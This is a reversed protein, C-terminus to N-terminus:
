VASQNRDDIEFIKKDELQEKLLETRVEMLVRGLWNLGAGRCVGLFRDNWRNENILEADGTAILKTALFPSEFKKKIFQRMLDLKVSDWDDRVQISHGLRKADNPTGANRILERTSEDLTKHAQYAHEVTKYQKGDVWISAPYWNSLFGYGAADTFSNIIKKDEMAVGSPAAGLKESHFLSSKASPRHPWLHLDISCLGM